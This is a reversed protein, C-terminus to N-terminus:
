SFARSVKELREEMHPLLASHSVHEEALVVLSLEEGVVVHLAGSGVVISTSKEGTESLRSAISSGSAGVIEADDGTLGAGAVILGDATTALVTLVGEFELLALLENDM